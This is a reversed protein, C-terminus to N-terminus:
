EPEETKLIPFTDYIKGFDIFQPIIEFNEKDIDQLKAITCTIGEKHPKKLGREEKCIMSSEHNIICASNAHIKIQAKIRM